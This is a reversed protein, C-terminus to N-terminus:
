IRSVQTAPFQVAVRNGAQHSFKRSSRLGYFKITRFAPQIFYCGCFCVLLALVWNSLLHANPLPMM